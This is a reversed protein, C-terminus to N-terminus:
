HGLLMERLTKPRQTQRIDKIKKREAIKKQKSQATQMRKQFKEVRGETDIFKQEGTYLPHCKFCSNVSIQAVTSGVQFSNGCSCSVLCQPYWQPHIKQKM